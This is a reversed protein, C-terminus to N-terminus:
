QAAYKKFGRMGLMSCQRVFSTAVTRANETSLLDCFHSSLNTTDNIDPDWVNCKATLASTQETIRKEDEISLVECEYLPGHFDNIIGHYDLHPCDDDYRMTRNLHWMQKSIVLIAYARCVGRKVCVVIRYFDSLSM